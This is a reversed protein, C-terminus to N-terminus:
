LLRHEYAFATAAARSTVELKRFINSVHREVTRESLVLESAIAKNTDGTALLRLVQRERVSLGHPDISVVPTALAALRTLDPGAGLQEFVARAAELELGGAEDDGLANCGLGVLVRTRAAEYPAELEQWVRLARRLPAMAGQADGEALAVAGSALGATASLVESPHAASIAELEDSARRAAELEGVAVMIEVFAPLLGARELPGQTQDIVRRIAARAADRNGQALRLLALGPQPEVGVRSAGRYAEEAAAFDGQLRHVEGKRYSASGAYRENVASQRLRKGAQEAEDLAAPWAGQLQMVEARHVLCIGSYAVMDPQRECWGTLADTWERARRAEHADQCFAITKCYVIGAVIPSLEGTTVAVM